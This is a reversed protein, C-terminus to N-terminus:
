EQTPANPPNLRTNAISELQSATDLRDIVRPWDEPEFPIGNNWSQDWRAADEDLRRTDSSTRYKKPDTFERYLAAKEVIVEASVDKSSLRGAQHGIEIRRLLDERIVFLPLAIYDGKTVELRTRFEVHPYQRLVAVLEM